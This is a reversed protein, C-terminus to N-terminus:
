AYVSVGDPVVVIQAEAGKHKLAIKYAEDISACYTMHMNEIIEKLAPDTVFLVQHKELIRALIQYQWQDPTTEPAPVLRIRQLLETPNKAERLGQYFHDGGVGDGCRACLILVAEKQAVAEATALGKVTQYVNQDLPYGGNTTIVIDGKKEPCIYAQKAMFTCGQLHALKPDGAVAYIVHKNHDLVVNLIYALHVMEAAAVMDVHLPNKDLIGSRAADDDIFAACHNGVVTKRGCVGPLISKRGGSFGAFFHPEIFGESLLLDTEIALRNVVLPAGSPLIGVPVLMAKEDCDHIYIKENAVIEEGLKSVLEEHTPARHCGTAVLLTISIEPSGERLAKLMHPIMVKSPVPRTHDSIIITATEKGQAMDQLLSSEIPAEMAALVIQNQREVTMEESTEKADLVQVHPAEITLPLHTHGYPLSVKM